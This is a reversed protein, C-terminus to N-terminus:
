RKVIKRTQGAVQVMYIGQRLDSLDVTTRGGQTATYVAINQGMLNLIYIPTGADFNGQITTTSIVPNPYILLSTKGDIITDSLVNLVPIGVWNKGFHNDVNNSILRMATGADTFAAAPWGTEPAYNIYDAVLGYNNMLRVDEGDNSLHGEDWQVVHLATLWSSADSTVFLTDGGNLVTGDPITAVIGKDIYYGSLDLSESGPNTITIYEPRTGNQPKLYLGCILAEPKMNFGAYGTGIGNAAPSTSKLGFNYLTPNIFEPDAYVTNVTNRLSDNDSLCNNFLITSKSDANFTGTFANSLISNYVKANGGARGPNKEYCNVAYGNGYFICHNISISSSDKVGAGMDCNVLLCNTMTVTSRQGVSVGKDYVNVIIVSDIQVNKTEEGIDIADGNNGLTNLIRTNKIVGDEIGDYDIADSDFEPNGEFVCNEVRAHGYKFNVLDSTYNSHIYSNTLVVDSYRTAIPNMLTNDIRLYDMNLDSNFASIVGVRQPIPGRTGDAIYIHKLTSAASCNWFNLAGWGQGDYDPNIRFSISDTATGEAMINGHIYFNSEPSMFVEVGPEITLTVGDGVTVDGRVIYPSCAKYLTMNQSITGPVVCDSTSEFVAVLSLDNSMNFPYEAATSIIEDTSNYYCLELDFSIDSSTVDEQHMEVAIENTGSKLVSKDIHFSFFASENMSGTAYSALTNYNIDVNGPLNDRVVEQGNIYVVAGDDRKLRIWYDCGNLDSDNVTFSKRFYTTVYKNSSSGYGVTTIEDGDGYGLEAQGSKWASDDFDTVYWAIGQDTGNDLYKWVSQKAILDHKTAISWGKFTYGAKSTATLKSDLSKMYPGSASNMAIKFDNLKLTGAQEPFVGVTLQATGGTLGYNALDNYLVFQREEAFTRLHAVENEWYSVSPMADGYDSTTALWRAVHREIEPALVDHHGDIYSRMLAPNFSTYIHDALRKAFYSKYSDNAMLRSFPYSTQSVSFATLYSTTTYFGRDLDMLIWRWKGSDKPKWAMVNHNISSNGSEIETIVLDTFEEVDMVTAVADFNSQISLNKNFLVKLSNYQELDGCEAYDENEVMDFTGADMSYHQEIYDTEIKERFNHIGMYEGNFYVTCWRWASIDLNMNLKTMQQGLIDRMLTNSWDNGSARLAFTSFSSRNTDYFISYDLSGSGYKKRFYVGLMKQPLQWSYLGNIKVGAEENFAARDAGNNEFLEINVPIEWDPKYSQAYIGVSDSWFNAPESSISVAPLGRSEMGDNIFYTNTIVPGPLMNDKFVRARVVTTTGLQVPNTYVPSDLTPQSGDLTYRIEGGLDTFLTITQHSNYIGGRINFMPENFVQDSYFETSNVAGPTPENYYGWLTIDNMNRGQSVDSKQVSYSVSDEVSLDPRFLGIQEADASLKFNTHTQLTDKGDAWFIVYGLAPITVNSIPWKDPNDLNDTLYYGNLNVASNGANYLEIWDADNNFDPDKVVSSNAAMFENIYIQSFSSFSLFLTFIVLIKRQM